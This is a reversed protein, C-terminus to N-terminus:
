NKIDIWSGQIPIIFAQKKTLHKSFEFLPAKFEIIENNRFLHNHGVFYSILLYNKNEITRIKYVSPSFLSESSDIIKAIIKKSKEIKRSKANEFFTDEHYVSFPCIILNNIYFRRRHSKNNEILLKNGDKKTIKDIIKSARIGEKKGHIIIDFDNNSKKELLSSGGVFIHSFYFKNKLITIIKKQFITLKSGRPELVNIVEKKSLRFLNGMIKHKFYNQPYLKKTLLLYKEYNTKQGVTISKIKKTHELEWYKYYLINNIKVTKVNKLPRKGYIIEGYFFNKDESLCCLIFDKSFIYSHKLVAMNFM